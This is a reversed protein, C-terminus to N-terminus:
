ARRGLAHTESSAAGHEVMDANAHARQASTRSQTVAAGQVREAVGEVQMPVTRLRALGAGQFVNDTV